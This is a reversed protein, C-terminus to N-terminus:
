PTGSHQAWLTYGQNAVAGRLAVLLTFHDPVKHSILQDYVSHFTGSISDEIPVVGASFTGDAVGSCGCLLPVLMLGRLGM